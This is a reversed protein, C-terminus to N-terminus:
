DGPATATGSSIAPGPTLWPMFAPFGPQAVEALTYRDLVALFADLAEALVCSLRCDNRLICRGCDALKMGRELKRVADGVRIESAPRALRIGGNRGRVSLALGEHVLSQGVKAVHNYSVQQDRAFMPLSLPAGDGRALVLLIRLGLDTHQTLQMAQEDDFKRKRLDLL